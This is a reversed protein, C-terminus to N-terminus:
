GNINFIRFLFYIFLRKDWESFRLELVFEM